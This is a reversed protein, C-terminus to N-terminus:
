VHARGIQWRTQAALVSATASPTIVPAKRGAGTCAFLTAGALTLGTTALFGRRSFTLGPSRDHELRRYRPDPETEANRYGLPCREDHPRDM